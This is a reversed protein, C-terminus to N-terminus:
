TKKVKKLRNKSRKNILYGQLKQWWNLADVGHYQKFFRARDSERWGPGRYDLTSLDLVASWSPFGVKRSKELDILSVDYGTPNEKVFIHKPYLSRHQVGLDHMARVVKAVAVILTEPLNALTSIYEDLPLYGELKELALIACLRGDVVKEGYFVPLPAGIGNDRLHLLM